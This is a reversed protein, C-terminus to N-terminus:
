GGHDNPRWSRTTPADMSFWTAPAPAASTLAVIEERLEAALRQTAAMAHARDSSEFAVAMWVTGREPRLSLEHRGVVNLIM